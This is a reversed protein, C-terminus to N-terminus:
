NQRSIRTDKPDTHDKSIASAHQPNPGIVQAGGHQRAEPEQGGGTPGLCFWFPHAPEITRQV